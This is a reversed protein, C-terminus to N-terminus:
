DNLNDFLEAKTKETDIKHQLLKELRCITLKIFPKAFFNKVKWQLRSDASECIDVMYVGWDDAIMINTSNLFNDKIKLFNKIRRVITSPNWKYYQYWTLDLEWWQEKHYKIYKKILDLVKCLTEPSLKNVDIQSLTKWNIYKQKILYEGDWIELLTTEPIYEWFYQEKLRLLKKQELIPLSQQKTRFVKVIFWDKDPQSIHKSSWIWETYNGGEFNNM